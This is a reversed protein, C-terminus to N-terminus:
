ARKLGPSVGVSRYKGKGAQEMFRKESAAVSVKVIAGSATRVTQEAIDAMRGSDDQLVIRIIEQGNNNAAGPRNSNAAQVGLRGDPGRRLPMIAEPGAEGMLGIGRAFPFVTPRDVVQNSYGSVGSMFVNGNASRLFSQLGGFTAGGGIDNGLSGFGGGGMFATFISDFIGMAAMELVKSAISELASLGASAFAGWLSTGNMLETKFDSLFSTFTSKGFEYAESLQRTREEAAAMEAALGNLEAAMAPTLKINDNAAKNLLEQEYRLRAAAETTMGLSQAELQKQAIFQESSMTLDAYAKRQREAEEQAKKLEKDSPRNAVQRARDGLAGRIYDTEFADGVNGQWNGQEEPSLKQKFGTFDFSLLPTKEGTVPNTFTIADGSLGDMLANWAQKGLAGMFTPLNNWGSTVVNYAAVFTGIIDNGIDVLIPATDDWLDGFWGAIPSIAKWIAETVLEWGAVVVDTFSVQQKQGRNIETRFAAVGISLTALVAAIPWFKAVMGAALKGTESFARGLGGEDPGWIMAIQPLQQTAVMLPNMGGALSVGIDQLQFMLNTRQMAGMRMASANRVHAASNVDLAADEAALKANLSTVAAALQYHGQEVLDAANATLGYKRYIGDLIQDARSMPVNGTEIGRGLTNVARTFREANGFGDVYSRSLRTLVDGAQSVKTQTATIAAGVQAARPALRTPPSRRRWAPPM